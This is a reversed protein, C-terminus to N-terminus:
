FRRNERDYVSRRSGGRFLYDVSEASHDTTRDMVFEFELEPAIGLTPVIANMEERLFAINAKFDIQQYQLSSQLIDERIIQPFKYLLMIATGFMVYRLIDQRHEHSADAADALMVLLKAEVAELYVISDILSNPIVDADVSPDVLHRIGDMYSEYNPDTSVIITGM